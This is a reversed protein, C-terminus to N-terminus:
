NHHVEFSAVNSSVGTKTDEVWLEHTGIMLLLTDVVHTFEGKDDSLMIIVPYESGDPKKLHSHLDSKPTFGSGKVDMFSKVPIRTASIVIAPKSPAPTSTASSAPTPEPTSQTCAATVITLLAILSYSLIYRSKILAM